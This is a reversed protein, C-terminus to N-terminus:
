NHWVILLRETTHYLVRCTHVRYYSLFKITPSLSGVILSLFLSNESLLALRPGSSSSQLVTMIRTELGIEDNMDRGVTAYGPSRRPGEECNIEPAPM